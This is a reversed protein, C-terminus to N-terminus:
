SKDNNLVLQETALADRRKQMAAVDGNEILTAVSIKDEQKGCAILLTSLLILTIINKM